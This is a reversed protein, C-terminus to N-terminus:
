LGKNQTITHSQLFDSYKTEFFGLAEGHLVRVYDYDYSVREAIEYFRMCRVYRYNLIEIYRKDDLAQIQDIIQDRLSALRIKDELIKDELEILKIVNKAMIDDASVQVHDKDYRIAAAGGATERLCALQEEKQRIKIDLVEIQELYEKATM